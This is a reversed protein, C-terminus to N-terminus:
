DPNSITSQKAVREKYSGILGKIFGDKDSKMMDLAEERRMITNLARLNEDSWIALEVIIPALSLGRDTLHYYVSKKNTLLKSKTVIGSEELIKLKTSLVNTSIAEDSEVFDKFSEKGELLM